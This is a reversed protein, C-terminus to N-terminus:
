DKISFKFNALEVLLMRMVTEDDIANVADYYWDKGAQTKIRSNPNWEDNDSSVVVLKAEEEKRKLYQCISNVKNSKIDIGRADQIMVSDGVFLPVIFANHMKYIYNVNMMTQRGIGWEKAVDELKKNCMNSYYYRIASMCKQTMTLNRRTNLSKVIAIVQEEPMNWGLETAVVDIGAAICAVQRCRGDVIMGKWLVVPSLLGNTKVDVNLADQEAKVAMPVIGAITNNVVYEKMSVGKDYKFSVTIM